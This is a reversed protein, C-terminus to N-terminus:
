RTPDPYFDRPRGKADKLRGLLSTPYEILWYSAVAVPVAVLLVILAGLPFGSQASPLLGAGALELLIPEHWIFLSYSILGVGTLWRARLAEHWRGQRRVHVTSFLLLAWLVASAPHFFTTAASEPHTTLLSLVYLGALAAVRLATASWARLRGRRGLAVTLVALGMGAAFGGFRAQPGFYVPWDTHPVEFGYHATAIWVLPAAYLVLCGGACVAVRARRTRISRCARAALPGLTVLLVYFLVELSLSWTPGITYFIQQKDFVHTFTLHEVLDLWNGPLTPNRVSWVVLVAFFYLPVIRIARRFLFTGATRTRGGDIAARAYTLTLLYASMVFFFDIVELSILAGLFPNDVPPHSGDADYRFYQQWVHFVVTSLAALGRFGEVERARSGPPSGEPPHQPRADAAPGASEAAPVAATVAPVVAGPAGPAAM